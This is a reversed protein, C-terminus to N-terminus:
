QPRRQSASSCPADVSIPAARALWRRRMVAGILGWPQAQSRMRPVAARLDDDTVVAAERWAESADLSQATLFERIPGLVPSQASLFLLHGEGPAVVMRAQPLLRTLLVANALPSLPDDDGSVVLTPHPIRTLLPLGTWGSLSLMQGLYGRISVRRLRVALLDAVVTRDHRAPGGVIGGITRAYIGPSLYRAPVLMHLMVLPAGPIAGLGCTTGALVVRRVREPAGAALQQAVIGGMSYGLVDAQEVGVSDLVLMALRALRPISVPMLPAASRGAGPADFSILRFGDLAAELRAWMGTDAAVGNILLVPPGEGVERVHISVGDLGVNRERAERM